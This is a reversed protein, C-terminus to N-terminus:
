VLQAASSRPQKSSIWASSHPRLTKRVRHSSFRRPRPRHACGCRRAGWKYCRVKSGAHLAALSGAALGFRSHLWASVCVIDEGSLSMAKASAKATAVLAGQTLPEGRVASGDDAASYPVVLVDDASLTPRLLPIPDPMPNYVPLSGFQLIGRVEEHGTNILHRLKRMSKDNVNDGWHWLELDTLAAVLKTRAESKFRQGFMLGRCGEDKLVAAVGDINVHPDIVVVRMGIKAAAIVTVLHETENALWLALTADRTYGAELLGAAVADTQAQRAFGTACDLLSARVGRWLM